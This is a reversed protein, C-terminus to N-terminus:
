PSGRCRRVSAHRAGRREPEVVAAVLRYGAPRRHALGSRIDVHTCQEGPRAGLRGARGPLALDAAALLRRARDRESPSLEAARELARAAAAAGGRRQAQAASDELLAAVHEDPDLAAAAVHWAYRDPRDRLANAVQLHAAAREAFPAAHYIASRVLPHTFQPGPTDLRILGVAEAPALASTSLGPVAAAALDPSDAAAALLLAARAAEPLAACRATMIVTLQDTLPLPEDAWRRGAAPDAAIVKALEILALPNGAAQALVQERARGRPPRPQVDLLRGADPLSLPGLLLQPFDREFGAPPVNGRAGALLVLQESELRRAAFALADLSARDLWQIDDAAVLLPGDDSLGSLLTLVAIGTLLADPPVPDDSLAFAGRLAEAQRVPLGAVRDLVPRLLQHLGAFALDQESERGAVALMRMGALRAARAAEALLVTKGVGPDGLLLLVRSEAYPPTVLERLRSLEEERGVLSMDQGTMVPVGGVGCIYALRDPGRSLRTCDLQPYWVAAGRGLTATHIINV